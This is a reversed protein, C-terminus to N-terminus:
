TRGTDRLPKRLMSTSPPIGTPSTRWARWASLSSSGIGFQPRCSEELDKESAFGYEALRRRAFCHLRWVDYGDIRGEGGFDFDVGWASGDCCM